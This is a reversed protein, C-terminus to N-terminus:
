FRDKGKSCPCCSTRKRQSRMGIRESQQLDDGFCESLDFDYSLAPRDAPFNTFGRACNEVALKFQGLKQQLSGLDRLDSALEYAQDGLNPYERTLSEHLEIARGYATVAELWQEPQAELLRSLASHAKSISIRLQMSEIDKPLRQLDLALMRELSSIAQSSNGQRGQIDAINLLIAALDTQLPVSDPHIAMLRKVLKYARQFAHLAENLQGDAVSLAIGLNSLTQALKVQYSVDDPQEAVLREWLIIAQKYHPIVTGTSGTLRRIEAVRGHAVAAQTRLAPDMGHGKLFEEYVPLTDTLLMKRLHHFGTQSLLNNTSVHNFVEDITERAQHLSFEAQDRDRRITEIRIMIVVMASVLTLLLILGTLISSAHRKISKIIRTVFPDHRALLSLGNLHRRLDDRLQEPFSYRWEPEKRLAMLVITDLDGVLTNKLQRPTVGRLEAIQDETAGLEVAGVPMLEYKMDLVATTRTPASPAPKCGIMVSPKEPVQECIAQFIGAADRSELRYPYQGSLLQYLVLGLAYLDSATTVVDGRVQEPSAYEPSLVTEAIGSLTTRMAAGLEDGGSEAQLLPGLEFDTLKAIGDATILINSPKLDRHIITHQHAFQVVECVQAFVKLRAAM